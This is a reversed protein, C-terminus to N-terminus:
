GSGAKSPGNPSPQDAGPGDAAAQEARDSAAQATEKRLSEYVELLMQKQRASLGPDALSEGLGLVLWVTTVDSGPSSRAM